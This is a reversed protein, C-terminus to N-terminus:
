GAGFLVLFAEQRYSKQAAGRQGWVLGLCCWFRTKGTARRPQLLFSGVPQVYCM